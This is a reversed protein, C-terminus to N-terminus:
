SFFHSLFLSLSIFHSILLSFDYLFFLVNFFVYHCCCCVLIFLSILCCYYFFSSLLLCIFEFSKVNLVSDIMLDSDSVFTIIIFHHVREAYTKVFFFDAFLFCVYIHKFQLKQLNSKKCHLLCVLYIRCDTCM